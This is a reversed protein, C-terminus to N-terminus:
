FSALGYFDDKVIRCLLIATGNCFHEEGVVRSCCFCIVISGCFGEEGVTCHFFFIGISNLQLRWRGGGSSASKWTAVEDATRRGAAM